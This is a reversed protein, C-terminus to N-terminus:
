RSNEKMLLGWGIRAIEFLFLIHVFNSRERAHEDDYLYCGILVECFNNEKYFYIAFLHISLKIEIM